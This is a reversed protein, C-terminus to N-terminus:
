PMDFIDLVIIERAAAQRAAPGADCELAKLSLKLLAGRPLAPHRGPTDREVASSDAVRILTAGGVM